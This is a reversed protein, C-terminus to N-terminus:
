NLMYDIEDDILVILNKVVENITFGHFTETPLEYTDVLDQNSRYFVLDWEGHEGKNGYFTVEVRVTTHMPLISVHGNGSDYAFCTKGEEDLYHDALKTCIAYCNSDKVNKEATALNM